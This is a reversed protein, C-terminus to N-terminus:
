TLSLCCRCPSWGTLGLGLIIRRGCEPGIPDLLFIIWHQQLKEVIAVLHWRTPFFPQPHGLFHLMPELGISVDHQTDVDVGGWERLPAGGLACARATGSASLEDRRRYDLSIASLSSWCWRRPPVGVM